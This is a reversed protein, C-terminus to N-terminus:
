TRFGTIRFDDGTIESSIMDIFQYISKTIFESLLWGYNKELHKKLTNPDYRSMESLRHMAAFTLPLTQRDILGNQLNKRKIYWLKNASYIYRFRKRHTEYYRVFDRLSDTDPSNRPANWHFKKNLRLTYFDVVDYYKDIGFGTLKAFEQQSSYGPELKVELWGEKSNKDHVFRPEDIPIFLEPQNSYTLNYARHIYELNYLIDKLTYSEPVPDKQNPITITKIPEKLYNCLGSLVGKPHLSVRENLLNISNGLRTGSVGHKTDFNIRKYTLLAKTANLYCYYATLPKSLLDLNETADFFNRAQNWYNLAEKDKVEKKRKLYLEVYHWTSDTLVTKNTFSPKMISKRLSIEAGKVKISPRANKIQIQSKIKKIEETNKQLQKQYKDDQKSSAM